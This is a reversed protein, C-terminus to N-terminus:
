PRNSTSWISEISSERKSVSTSDMNDFGIIGFSDKILKSRFNAEIIIKLKLLFFAENGCRTKCFYVYGKGQTVGATLFAVNYVAFEEEGMQGDAVLFFLDNCTQGAANM